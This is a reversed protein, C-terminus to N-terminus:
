RIFNFISIIKFNLINKTSVLDSTGKAPETKVPKGKAPAASAKKDKKGKGSAANGGGEGNEFEEKVYEPIDLQQTFTQEAKFATCDLITNLPLHFKGLLKEEANILKLEAVFANMDKRKKPDIGGSKNKGDKKDKKASGGKKNNSDPKADKKKGSKDKKSSPSKSEAVEEEDPEDYTM